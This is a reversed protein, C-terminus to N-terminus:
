KLTVGRQRRGRISFVILAIIRITACCEFLIEALGFTARLRGVDLTVHRGPVYSETKIFLLLSLAWVFCCVLAWAM